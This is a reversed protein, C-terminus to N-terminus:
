NVKKFTYQDRAADYSLGIEYAFEGINAIHDEQLSPAQLLRAIKRNGSVSVSEHLEELNTKMGVNGGLIFFAEFITQVNELQKSIMEVSRKDLTLELQDDLFQGIEAVAVCANEVTVHNM